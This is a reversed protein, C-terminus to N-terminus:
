LKEKLSNLKELQKALSPMVMTIGEKNLVECNTQVMKDIKHCICAGCHSCKTTFKAKGLSIALQTSEYDGNLHDYCKEAGTIEFDKHCKWCNVFINKMHSM